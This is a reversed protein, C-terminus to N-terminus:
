EVSIRRLVVKQSSLATFTHEFNRIVEEIFEQSFEQPSGSIRDIYILFSDDGPYSISIIDEWGQESNDNGSFATVSYSSILPDKAREGAYTPMGMQEMTSQFKDFTEKADEQTLRPEGEVVFAM